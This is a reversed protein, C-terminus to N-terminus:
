EAGEQIVHVPSDADIIGRKKDKWRIGEVWDGVKLERWFAYNRFTEGTYTRGTLSETDSVHVRVIYTIFEGSPIIRRVEGKM